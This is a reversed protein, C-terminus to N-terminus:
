ERQHPSPFLQVIAALPKSIYTLLPKPKETFDSNLGGSETFFFYFPSVGVSFLLLKSFLLFFIREYPTQPKAAKKELHSHQLM